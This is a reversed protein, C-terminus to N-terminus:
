CSPKRRLRAWGALAAIGLLVYTSPEPVVQLQFTQGNTLSYNYTGENLGLASFTTSTWTSTGTLNGSTFGQPVYVHGASQNIGFQDGSTSNATMSTAGSGFNAPGSLGSYLSANASAGVKVIGFFPQIVSSSAGSAVFTLGTIDFSGGGSIVVNGGSETATLIIGANAVSASICLFASAIISRISM